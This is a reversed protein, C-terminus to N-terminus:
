NFKLTVNKKKRSGKFRTWPFQIWTGSMVLRIYLNRKLRLKRSVQQISSTWLELIYFGGKRRKIKKIYRSTLNMECSSRQSCNKFSRSKTFLSMNKLIAEIAMLIRFKNRLLDRLKNLRKDKRLKLKKSQNSKSIKTLRSRKTCIGGKMQVRILLEKLRLSENTKYQKQNFNNLSESLLTMRHQLKHM